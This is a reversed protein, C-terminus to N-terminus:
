DFTRPRTFFSPIASRRERDGDFDIHRIAESLHYLISNIRNEAENLSPYNTYYVVNELHSQSIFACMEILEDALAGDSLDIANLIARRGMADYRFMAKRYDTM